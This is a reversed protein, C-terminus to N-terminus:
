RNRKCVGLLTEDELVDASHRPVGRRPIQHILFNETKSSVVRSLSSCLNGTTTILKMHKKELAFLVMQRKSNRLQRSTPIRPLAPLTPLMPAKIRTFVKEHFETTTMMNRKSAYNEKQRGGSCCCSTTVIM